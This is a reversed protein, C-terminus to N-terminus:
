HTKFLSEWIRYLDCCNYIKMILNKNHHKDFYEEICVKCDYCYYGHRCKASFYCHKCDIMRKNHRCLM